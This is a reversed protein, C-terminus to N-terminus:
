KKKKINLKESAKSQDDLLLQSIITDLFQENAAIVQDMDTADALKEQLIKWSV